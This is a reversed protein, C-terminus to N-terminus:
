EPFMTALDRRVKEPDRRPLDTSLRQCHDCNRDRYREAERAASASLVADTCDGVLFEQGHGCRTPVTFQRTRRGVRPRELRVEDPEGTPLKTMADYAQAKALATATAMVDWLDERLSPPLNYDLLELAGSLVEMVARPDDANPLM